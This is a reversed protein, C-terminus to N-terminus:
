FRKRPSLLILFVDFPGRPNQKASDRRPVFTKSIKLFFSQVNLISITPKREGIVYLISLSGLAGWRACSECNGEPSLPYLQSVDTHPNPGGWLNLSKSRGPLIYSAASVHSMEYLM